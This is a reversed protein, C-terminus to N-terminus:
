ESAAAAASQRQAHYRALEDDLDGESRPAAAAPPASAGRGGGFGGRGGGRGGFAGRSAGGRGGGRGGREAGREAGRETLRGMTKQHGASFPRGAARDTPPHLAAADLEAGFGAGGAGSPAATNMTVRFNVDKQAHGSGGNGSRSWHTSADPARPGAHPPHPAHSALFRPMPAAGFPMGGGAGGGRGGFMPAPAAPAYGAAAAAYYPPFAGPYGEFAAHAPHPQHAPAEAVVVRLVTNEVTRGDFEDLAKACDGRHRLTVEARPVVGGRGSSLPTVSVVEGVYEAFLARVEEPTVVDNLGSVIVRGPISIAPREAREPRGGRPAPGAREDRRQGGRGQGQQQSKKVVVIPGAAAQREDRGGLNQVKGRKVVTVVGGAGGGGGSHGGNGGRVKGGSPKRKEAIIENL